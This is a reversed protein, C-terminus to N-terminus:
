AGETAREVFAEVAPGVGEELEGISEEGRIDGGRGNVQAEFCRMAAAPAAKVGRKPSPPDIGFVQPSQDGTMRKSSASRRGDKGHVHAHPIAAVRLAAGLASVVIVRRAVRRPLRDHGSPSVLEDCLEIEDALAPGGGHIHSADARPLVGILHGGLLDFRKEAEPMLLLPDNGQEDKICAVIGHFQLLPKLLTRALHEDTQSRPTAEVGIRAESTWRCGSSPWTTVPGLHLTRIRAGPGFSRRFVRTLVSAVSRHAHAGPRVQMRLDSRVFPTAATPRQGDHNPRKHQYLHLPQRAALPPSLRAHQPQPPMTLSLGIEVEDPSSIHPAEVQLMGEAKEFLSQSPCRRPHTMGLLRVAPRPQHHCSEGLEPHRPRTNRIPPQRPLPAVAGAAQCRNSYVANNRRKQHFEARGRLRRFGASSRGSPWLAAERASGFAVRGELLSSSDVFIPLSPTKHCGYLEGCFERHNFRLSLSIRAPVGQCSGLQRDTDFYAVALSVVSSTFSSAESKPLLRYQTVTLYHNRSPLRKAPHLRRLRM